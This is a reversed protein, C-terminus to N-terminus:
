HCLVIKPSRALARCRPINLPGSMGCAEIAFPASIFCLMRRTQAVNVPRVIPFRNWRRMLVELTLRKLSVIARASLASFASSRAFLRMASSSLSSLAALFPLVPFALKRKLSSPDPCLYGNDSVARTHCEGSENGVAIALLADM